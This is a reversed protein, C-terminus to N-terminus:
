YALRTITMFLIIGVSKMEIIIMFEADASFKPEKPIGTSAVLHLTLRM